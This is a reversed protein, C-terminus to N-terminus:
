SLVGSLAQIFRQNQDATGVTVRLHGPMGYNAVPRVIVGQRLMADYVPAADRQMDVALFNGMSPLYGLGLRDLEQQLWAKGERNMRISAQLHEDDDLAALAAAQAISNTNFPQRM